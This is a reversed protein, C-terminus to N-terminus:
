KSKRETADVDNITITRSRLTMGTRTSEEKLKRGLTTSILSSEPRKIKSACKNNNKSTLQATNKTLPMVTSISSQKDTLSNRLSFLSPSTKTHINDNHIDISKMMNEDNTKTPAITVLINSVIAYLIKRNKRNNLITELIKM